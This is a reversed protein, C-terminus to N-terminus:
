LILKYKKGAIMTQTQDLIFYVCLSGINPEEIDIGAFKARIEKM